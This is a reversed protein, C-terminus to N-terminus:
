PFFIATNNFTHVTLWTIRSVLLLSRDFMIKVVPTTQCKGAPREPIGTTVYQGAPNIFKMGVSPTNKDAGYILMDGKLLFHFMLSNYIETCSPDGRTFYGLMNTDTTCYQVFPFIFDDTVLSVLVHALM